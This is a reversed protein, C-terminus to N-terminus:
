VNFEDLTCNAPDHQQLTKTDFSNASLVSLLAIALMAFTIHKHWGDYSRLEYHDLGVQGKAEKFCSEVTWRTGAIEVLKTVPTGLPAYAIYAKTDRDSKGRRALLVRRFGPAVPGTAFERIQRDYVKAGKSGDGCSAEFWGEEPLGLLQAGVNSGGIEAKWSVNVVYSKGQEELWERLADYDGYACDGTV